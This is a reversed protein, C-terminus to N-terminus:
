IKIVKVFPGIIFVNCEKRELMSCPKEVYYIEVIVKAPGFGFPIKTRVWYNSKGCLIQSNKGDKIVGSGEIWTVVDVPILETCEGIYFTWICTAAGLGGITSKIYGGDEPSANVVSTTSTLIFLAIVGLVLGKKLYRKVGM